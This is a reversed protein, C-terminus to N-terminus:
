PDICSDGNAVAPRRRVSITKVHGIRRSFPPNYVLLDLTQPYWETHDVLSLLVGAARGIAILLNEHIELRVGTVIIVAKHSRNSFDETAAVPTSGWFIGAGTVRVGLLTTALAPWTTSAPM